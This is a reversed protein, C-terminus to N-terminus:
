KWKTEKIQNVIGRTVFVIVLIFGLIAIGVYLNYMIQAFKQGLYMELLEFVDYGTIVILLYCVAGVGVGWYITRELSIGFKKM